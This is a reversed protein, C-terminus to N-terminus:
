VLNSFCDVTKKSLGSNVPGAPPPAVALKTKFERERETQRNKEKYSVKLGDREMSVHIGEREM